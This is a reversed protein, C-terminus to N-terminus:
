GGEVATFTLENLTEPSSAGDPDEPTVMRETTVLRQPPAAEVVVGAFGFREGTEPNQWQSRLAAGPVGSAECVPMSWGDPGLQWRRLLAADTFAQWLQPVSGRVIRTVRAQADGILQVQTGEGAAFSTLDALVGDMQGMADSMGEIQGMAIVQEMDEVT